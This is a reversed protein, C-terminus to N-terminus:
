AKKAKNRKGGVRKAKDSPKYATIDDEWSGGTSASDFSSSSSSSSKSSNAQTYVYALAGLGGLVAMYYILTASTSTPAEILEITSNHLTHMFNRGDTRNYKVYASFWFELPELIADPRFTYELTAQSNPGVTTAASKVTFNQIYYNYDFPSHLHGALSSVNFTKEGNNNFSVLLTIDEGLPFKKDAYKPLFTKVTIDSSSVADEDDDFDEDDYTEDDGGAASDDGVEGDDDARVVDSLFTLGVFFLLLWTLLRPM